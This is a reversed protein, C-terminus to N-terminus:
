IRWFEINTSHIQYPLSVTKYFEQSL